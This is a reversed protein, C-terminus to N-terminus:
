RARARRLSMALSQKRIPETRQANAPAEQSIRVTGITLAYAIMDLGSSYFNAQVRPCFETAYFPSLLNCGLGSPIFPMGLTDNCARILTTYAMVGLFQTHALLNTSRKWALGM